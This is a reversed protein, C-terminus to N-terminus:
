MQAQLLPWTIRTNFFEGAKVIYEAHLFHFGCQTGHEDSGDGQNGGSTGISPLLSRDGGNEDAFCPAISSHSHFGHRFDHEIAVKAGPVRNNVDNQLGAIEGAQVLRIFINKVELRQAMRTELFCHINRPSQEPM